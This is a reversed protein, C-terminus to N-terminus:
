VWDLNLDEDLSNTDSTDLEQDIDSVYGQDEVNSDQNDQSVGKSCGSSFILLGMVLIIFIIKKM